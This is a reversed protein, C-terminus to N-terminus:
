KRKRFVRNLLMVCLIMIGIVIFISGWGEAMLRLSESLTAPCDPITGAAAEHLINVVTNM